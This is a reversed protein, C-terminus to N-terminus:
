LLLLYHAHIFNYNLKPKFCKDAYIPSNFLVGEGKVEIEEESNQLGEKEIARKIVM